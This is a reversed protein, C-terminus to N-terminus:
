LVLGGIRRSRGRRRRGGHRLRSVPAAALRTKGCGGPGTLTVVRGDALLDAVKAGERERGVFAAVGVPLGSRMEMSAAEGRDYSCAVVQPPVSWRRMLLPQRAPDASPPSAEPRYPFRLSWEPSRCWHPDTGVASRWCWPASAVEADAVDPAIKGVEVTWPRRAARDATPGDVAEGSDPEDVWDDPEGVLRTEQTPAHDPACPSPVPCQPSDTSLLM